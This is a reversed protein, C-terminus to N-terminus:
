GAEGHRRPDGGVRMLMLHSGQDKRLPCFFSPSSFEAKWDRGRRGWAEETCDHHGKVEAPAEGEQQQQREATGAAGFGSPGGGGGLSPGDPRRGGLHAQCAVVGSLLVFPAHLHEVVVRPPGDAVVLHVEFQGVHHAALQSVLAADRPGM